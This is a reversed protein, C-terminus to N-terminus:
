FAAGGSRSCFALYWGAVAGRSCIGAGSANSGAIRAARSVTMALEAQIRGSCYSIARTM